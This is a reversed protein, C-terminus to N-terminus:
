RRASRRIGFAGLVLAASLLPLLGTAGTSPLSRGSRTVAADSTAGGSGETEVPASSTPVSQSPVAVRSACTFSDARSSDGAGNYRATAPYPCLPRTLEGDSTNVGTGPPLTALLRGPAQGTERWTVMAEFMGTPQPGAGGACHGVNPAMYLRVFQDVAARGGMQQQLRRYYDATGAPFILQDALGHWIIVKGGHDRFESLDADNTSLVDGWEAVSQDFDAAFQEYSLSHYDWTPDKYLWWKFWDHTIPFPVSDIATGDPGSVTHALTLGPISGLDAGPELGYWLFSGDARRPGEFIKTLVTVDAETFAGCPTEVGLLTRVDFQCTMSDFLGDLVGDTADCAEAVATTVAAAKCTPLFNDTEQMVVVPWMEAPIFRTWNIAPAAALIGDFDDPYRMAETLGERGGTSCGNWYSYTPPQGYYYEILAKSKVAMEHNARHAFGEIQRYNMGTPSWAWEGNLPSGTHGTDTAATVYGDALGGTPPTFVGAYGGNGFAQFRGNWDERPLLVNINIREPVLVTVSCHPPTEGDTSVETASTVRSGDEFPLDVMTACPRVPQLDAAESPVSSAGAPAAPLLHATVLAGMLLLVGRRGDIRM